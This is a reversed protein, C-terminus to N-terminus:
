CTKLHFKALGINSNVLHKSNQPVFQKKGANEVVLINVVINYLTLLVEPREVKLSSFLRENLLSRHSVLVVRTRDWDWFENEGDSYYKYDFPSM